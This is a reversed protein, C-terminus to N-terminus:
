VKDDKSYHKYEWEAKPIVNENKEVEGDDRPCSHPIRWFTVDVGGDDVSESSHPIVMGNKKCGAVLFNPVRMIELHPCSKCTKM